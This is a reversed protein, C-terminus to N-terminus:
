YHFQLSVKVFSGNLEIDPCAENYPTGALPHMNASPITAIMYGYDVGLGFVINPKYQFGIFPLYGVGAGSWEKVARNQDPRYGSDEKYNASIAGIAAGLFIRFEQTIRPKLAFIFANYGIGLDAQTTYTDGSMLGTSSYGSGGGYYGIQFIPNFSYRWTGGMFFGGNMQTFSGNSNLHTNIASLSPYYFGFDPGGGSGIEFKESVKEKIEGTIKEKLGQLGQEQKKLWNKFLQANADTVCFIFGMVLAVAAILIKRKM